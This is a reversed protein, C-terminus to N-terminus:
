SPFNSFHTPFPNLRSLVACYWFNSLSLTQPDPSSLLQILFQTLPPPVFTSQVNFPLHECITLSFGHQGQFSLELWIIAASPLLCPLPPPHHNNCHHHKTFQGCDNVRRRSDSTLALVLVLKWSLIKLSAQKQKQGKFFAPLCLLSVLVVRNYRASGGSPPSTWGARLRELVVPLPGFVLSSAMQIKWVRWLQWKIWRPVRSQGM